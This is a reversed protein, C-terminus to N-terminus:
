TLVNQQQDDLYNFFAPDQLLYFEVPVIRFVVVLFLYPWSLDYFNGWTLHLFWHRYIIIWTTFFTDDVDIELYMQPQFTYLYVKEPKIFIETFSKSNNVFDEQQQNHCFKIQM